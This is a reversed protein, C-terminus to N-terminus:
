DKRLVCKWLCVCLCIVLLFAVATVSILIALATGIKTNMSVAIASELAKHHVLCKVSVDKLLRAQVTLTSIVLTTGDGQPIALSVPPGMTRNDGEVNWVIEAKPRAAATCNAEIVGPSTTKYSVQPKPLVFVTLCTTATKTGEPYTHFECTYCGEDETRVPRLTLQSDSMSRSLHTRDAYEENITPDGHKAYSAVEQTEGREAMKKWLVQEVKEPLGYQCSLSAQKGSVATKNGDQVVSAPPIKAWEEKCIRELDHLNTPQQKAVRVKLERWLNEIPNLDPSQSPWEMVKIHNKKLWDKTAKATHKPDNDHQFVWGRGMKLDRASPLLNDRLITRYMAGDMKGTIRHLLGTGKASFCGWFMISGGGHKVTPVTNKPDYAANKKRWVHRTSNLGFLEIKTEDSWLVKEWYSPEDKLHDNAYKLRAEVHARKLLPVKRASCSTFGNNRLTNGITEKCVTTGAAKLDNALEQRTTAPRNRVTRLMMAVGRPSIKKPAGPRPRNITMNYEKFKRIIAGITTVKVDLVKSIKKYGMGAKHLDVIRVRLDQSLEKTKGMNSVQFRHSRDSETVTLCLRGEKSGSPYVDFICTYCGEDRHSVRKIIVNSSDQHGSGLEVHQQGSVSAPQGPIYSILTHNQMDLWRVQKISEGKSKVLSCTLTFPREVVAEQRAPAVVRGHIRSVIALSVLLQLCKQLTPDLMKARSVTARSVDCLSATKTLM